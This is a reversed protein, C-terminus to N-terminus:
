TKGDSTIICSKVSRKVPSGFAAQSTETRGEDWPRWRRVEKGSVIDFLSVKGDDMQHRAVFLHEGDSLFQMFVPTATLGQIEQVQNGTGMDWVRIREHCGAALWGSDPSFALSTAGHDLRLQHLL